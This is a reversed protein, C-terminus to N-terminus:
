LKRYIEVNFKTVPLNGVSEVPEEQEVLNMMLGLRQAEGWVINLNNLAQKVKAAAMRDAKLGPDDREM